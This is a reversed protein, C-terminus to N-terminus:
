PVKSQIRLRLITVSHAPFTYRFKSAANQVTKTAPAVKTPTDLSNEGAPGASTLVIAKAEAQVEGAGRLDIDTDHAVASVNVVKLIVENTASARSAVAYLPQTVAPVADHILKGDLYCRTRQGAMEVRIDYWRGNEIRGSLEKGVEGNREIAHKSNGWGGLNWWSKADEDRVGFLILFGEAGGLKRAKLSLTYNSWNPDGVVIRCNDEDGTQRLAGDKVKWQGHLSKWGKADKAFDSHFVIKDGQLVTVDKFEAQTAWTGLGIMGRIPEAPAIPAAEISIPLVVDGRNESFMKQAYYSPLGYVRSSDFNIL